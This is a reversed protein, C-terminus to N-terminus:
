FFKDNNDEKKSIEIDEKLVTESKKGYVNTTFVAFQNLMDSFINKKTKTLKELFRRKHQIRQHLEYWNPM